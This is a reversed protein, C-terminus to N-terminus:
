SLLAAEVSSAHTRTPFPDLAEQESGGLLALRALRLPSPPPAGLLSEVVETPKVGGDGMLRVRFRVLLRVLPYSLIAFFFAFAVPVLLSAALKM